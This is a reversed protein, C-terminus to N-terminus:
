RRRRLAVVLAGLAILSMSSPEPAVALTLRSSDITEWATTIYSDFGSPMILDIQTSITQGQIGTMASLINENLSFFFTQNINQNPTWQQTQLSNITASMTRNYQYSQYVGRNVGYDISFEGSSFYEGPHLEPLIFQIILNKYGSPGVYRLYGVDGSGQGSISSTYITEAKGSTAVLLV